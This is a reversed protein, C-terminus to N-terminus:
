DEQSKRANVYDNNALSKFYEGPKFRPTRGAKITIKKTWEQPLVGLRAHRERVSFKGFGSFNVEHGSCALEMILKLMTRVMDEAETRTVALKAGVLEIFQSRNVKKM